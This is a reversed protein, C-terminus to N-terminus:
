VSKMTEQYTSFDTQIAKLNADVGARQLYEVHISIPIPRSVDEKLLKLFDKLHVIGSGLPVNEIRSDKWNFDKLYVAEIHPLALKWDVPWSFGGEVTAHRIDFAIGIHRPDIGDLIQVIDWIGAGVYRLGAHNQYVAQIGCEANLQALDKLMSRSEKLTKKIDLSKDYKYYAMRYKKVGLKAATRVVKEMVPDDARNIHSAMVTIELGKENLANVLQPLKEEVDEPAIQGGPRITAEIGHLGIKHIEHALDSFSLSQVFKIFACISRQKSEKALLSSPNMLPISLASATMSKTLVSGFTRRDISLESMTTIHDM